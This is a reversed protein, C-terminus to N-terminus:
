FSNRTQECVTSVQLFQTVSWKQDCWPMGPICNFYKCAPCFNTGDYFSTLTVYFMVVLVPLSLVMLAQKRRRDWKHYYIKPMLLLGAPIGFLFGGVHALNDVYPLTGILLSFTINVTMKILEIWPNKIITWNQLLDLLLCAIMGAILYFRVMYRGQLELV